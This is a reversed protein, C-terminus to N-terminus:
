NHKVLIDTRIRTDVRIKALDNEVIEQISHSRLKKINKFGYKNILLLRICRLVENHRRTYDYGLIRNCGTALHDITKKAQGCHQCSPATEGWFVNRDQIYCYLAKPRPNNNEHTM